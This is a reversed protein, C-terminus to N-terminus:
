PSTDADQVQATRGPTVLGSEYALVVAQARDRLDLKRFIRTVHTKVTPETIWLERAIEANNAGRGVLRLVEAERGTLESLREAAVATGITHQDVLRRLVSPAILAEGGVVTRVADALAEPRTEKLLFGSAGATLAEYVYEDADFTTLMVVKSSLGPTALIRRTAELGDMVPMRVDMLMVDPTRETALRVAQAGDEAVGVVDLDPAASLIMALGGRVLAQDDAIVVRIM